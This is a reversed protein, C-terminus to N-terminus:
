GGRSLEKVCVIRYLMGQNIVFIFKVITYNDNYICKLNYEGVLSMM